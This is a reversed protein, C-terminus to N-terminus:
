RAASDAALPAGTCRSPCGPWDTGRYKGLITGIFVFIPLVVSQVARPVFPMLQTKRHRHLLHALYFCPPRNPPGSGLVEFVAQLYRDLDVVPTVVGHMVLEEDGDNRWTHVSGKPFHIAEGARAPFQKGDVTCSVTGSVVVAREDEEFHVHLPPGERHAPLSGRVHLEEIGNAGKKRLLELREGTNTLGIKLPRDDTENM